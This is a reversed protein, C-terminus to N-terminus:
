RDEAAPPSSCGGGVRVIPLSVGFLKMVYSGILM